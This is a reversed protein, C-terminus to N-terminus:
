SHTAAALKLTLCPCPRCPAANGAKALADCPRERQGARSGAAAPTPLVSSALDSAENMNLVSSAITRMSMDSYMSFCATLLSM